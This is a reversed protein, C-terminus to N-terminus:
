DCSDYTLVKVQYDGNPLLQPAEMHAGYGWKQVDYFNQAAQIVEDRPGQYIVYYSHGPIVDQRTTKM